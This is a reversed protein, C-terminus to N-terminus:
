CYSVSRRLSLAIFVRWGCYVPVNVKGSQFRWRMRACQLSIFFHSSMDCPTNPLIFGSLSLKILYHRRSFTAAIPAYYWFHWYFYFFFSFSLCKLAASILIQMNFILRIVIYLTFSTVCPSLGM